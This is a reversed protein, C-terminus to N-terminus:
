VFSVQWLKSFWNSSFLIGTNFSLCRMLLLSECIDALTRYDLYVLRSHGPEGFYRNIGSGGLGGYAAIVQDDHNVLDGLISLNESFVKVGCPVELTVNAGPEGVLWHRYSHKGNAADVTLHPFEKKISNLSKVNKNAKIVVNGGNGGVGKLTLYGNGGCGGTVRLMLNDLFSVSSAVLKRPSM